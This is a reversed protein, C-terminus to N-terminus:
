RRQQRCQGGDPDCGRGASTRSAKQPACIRAWIGTVGPPRPKTSAPSVAISASAPTDAPRRRARWRRRDGRRRSAAAAAPRRRRPRAVLAAIRRRASRHQGPAAGLARARQPRARGGARRRVGGAHPPARARAVRLRHGHLDLIPWLSRTWPVPGWIVLLLILFALGLRFSWPHERLAPASVRRLVTARKGPGILWGGTVIFLGGVISGWAADTLLSTGIIFTAKVAPRANPSEALATVAAEGGIRRLALVLVGAFILCGGVAVVTRRRDPPARGRRGHAARRPGRARHHADQRPPDGEPGGRDQREQPLELQQLDPLKDAVGAPLGTGAAVQAILDHLNLTVTGGRAIDGDLIKVLTQHATGTPRRWAALAAASGLVKPANRNAVERLAASVPGALPKLNDPLTERLQNEVPASAYIRQLIATSLADRIEENELLRDSTQVWNQTDLMQRQAWVAVIGVTWLLTALVLLVVVGTRRM